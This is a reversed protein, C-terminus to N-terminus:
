KKNERLSKAINRMLEPKDLLNKYGKNKLSKEAFDKASGRMVAYGTGAALGAIPGKTRMITKVKESGFAAGVGVMLRAFRWKFDSMPLTSLKRFKQFKQSDNAIDEFGMERLKAQVDVDSLNKSKSLKLLKATLKDKLVKIVQDVIEDSVYGELKKRLGAM